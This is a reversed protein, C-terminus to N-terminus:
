KLDEIELDEEKSLKLNREGTGAFNPDQRQKEFEVCKEYDYKINYRRWYKDLRKEFAKVTPAEIVKTPLENWTTVIRNRFFLARLKGTSKSKVLKSGRGRTSNM